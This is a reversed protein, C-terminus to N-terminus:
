FKIKMKIIKENNINNQRLIDNERQLQPIQNSLKTIKDKSLKIVSEYESILQDKFNITEQMKRINECLFYFKM